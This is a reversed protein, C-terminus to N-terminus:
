VASLYQHPFLYRSSKHSFSTLSSYCVLKIGVMGITSSCLTILTAIRHSFLRILKM